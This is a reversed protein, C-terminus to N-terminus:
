SRAGEHASELLERAERALEGITVEAAEPDDDDVAVLREDGELKALAKSAAPDGLEAIAEIGAAVAIPSPHALFRALLKQVGPEPVDVLVFPLEALAPSDNALTDLAREVGLAVEKFRDFAREELASGAAFRADGDESSLIRVLLDVPKAGEVGALLHALSVLRMARDDEDAEAEAAEIARDVAGLVEAPADVVAEAIRARRARVEREATFLEDLLDSARKKSSAM